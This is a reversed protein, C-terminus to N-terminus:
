QTRYLHIEFLDCAIYTLTLSLALLKSSLIFAHMVCLCITYLLKVEIGNQILEALFYSMLCQTGHLILRSSHNKSRLKSMM